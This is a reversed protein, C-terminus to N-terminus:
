ETWRDLHRRRDLAAKIVRLYDHQPTSARMTHNDNHSRRHYLCDDMYSVVLAAEKARVFWDIFEGTRYEEHFFGVRDFASRKMLATGAAAVKMVGPKLIRNARADDTLDPSLFKRFGCFVIDLEANRDMIDMQLALKRTDWVDDADLFALWHGTAARVGMNRTAGIGRNSQDIITIHPAYENLVLLSDDTSGDNVAIVEVYGDYTQGLVSELAENLYRAANYVPIVVSVVPRNNKQKM